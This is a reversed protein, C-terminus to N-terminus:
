RKLATSIYPDLVDNKHFVVLDLSIELEISGIWSTVGDRKMESVITCEVWGKTLKLNSYRFSLNQILTVSLSRFPSVVRLNQVGLSPSFIFNSYHHSVIM